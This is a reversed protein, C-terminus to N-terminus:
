VLIIAIYVKKLSIAEQHIILQKHRVEERHKNLMFIFVSFSSLLIFFTALIHLKRM